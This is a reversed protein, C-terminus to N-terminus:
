SNIVDSCRSCLEPHDKDEGVTTSYNWCRECKDGDALSYSISVGLDKFEVDDDARGLKVDSVILLSPLEDLIEKLWAETEKDLPNIWVIAELAQGIKKQARANELVKLAADRIGLKKTYDALLDLNKYEDNLIPWDTLFVSDEKEGPLYAYVEDATHPIIPALFPLITKTVEYLVTQAAKRSLGDKSDCYLRDKIVDLYLSSMDVSCFNHVAHFVVHFQYDDYAKTVKETLDTLKALAWKDISKLEDYKVSDTEPNFDAINQVLFRCTNRIRRYVETIQKLLGDSVGVDSTYDASAVWLRLIDAGLRKVIDNPSVSNGLSKSMKKGKDDVIFGHTLVSRYPSEGTTAVSTLLSSQFWGRHQDSGELYMDAPWSLEPRKRLVAAHSSGSDFWVDMIDKEKVFNESECSSCKTKEPLIEGASYKFWAVSGEKAFLEQVAHITEDNILEKGCDECYFVPLPVGWTRQRSICWDRRDKVMNTIRDRGWSPIWKVGDIAKLTQERFGDISAFWQSTARFIVPNHCRWCHPYQHTIWHMKLLHGNEDLDKVVLKGGEDLMLGAYQDAEETFYGKDDVPSFTPLGYQQGVEFDEIGHGPATHVCGTGSELTVHNGLIVVSERDYLPHKCKIGELEAGRVKALVEYSEFGLTSVVTELLGEAFIYTKEKVKVRVYDFDPHLAIALNAPITWPTTTWIIFADGEEVKGKGEVVDFAVYISPSKHDGYEIEAEALVTECSTCWYVPKLGKYIYGKKFMDGFVGVQVAEYDPTLTIYSNDWDGWLGLRQMDKKQVDIWHCAYDKCKERFEVPDLAHRNLKMEKIMAQEIPLGHTDWGHIYPTYHGRLAKYKVIIDKLTKNLAHGIHIHGNAFPPGDHLIFKTGKENKKLVKWYVKKDEWQKQMQPEREPLNARMPFIKAPLQLTKSYDMQQVELFIGTGVM